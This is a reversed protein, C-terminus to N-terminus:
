ADHQRHGQPEPRRRPPQDQGEHEDGTTARSARTKVPCWARRLPTTLAPPGRRRSVIRHPRGRDCALPWATIQIRRHHLAPAQRAAQGSSLVHVNIDEPRFPRAPRPRGLQLNIRAQCLSAVAILSQVDRAFAAIVAALGSAAQPEAALDPAANMLIRTIASECAGDEPLRAASLMPQYGIQLDGLGATCGDFMDAYAAERDSRWAESRLYTSHEMTVLHDQLRANLTELGPYCTGPCQAMREYCRAMAPWFTFVAAHARLAELGYDFAPEIEALATAVEPSFAFDAPADPKRGDVLVELFARVFHRPGACVGTESHFAFNREAYDLIQDVSVPTGPPLTPEGVPVFLMM